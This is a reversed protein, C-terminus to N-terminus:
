NDLPVFKACVAANLEVTCVNKTLAGTQPDIAFVFVNGGDQNEVLCFKGTPDVIFNRPVKVGEGQHGVLTIRGTSEDISYAVISNQGRNSGYLFKGSPHVVVEATSYGKRVIDGPPLTSEKQVETLKGTEADYAFVSMTCEHENIAYLFRGSPHFATHRPAAAPGTTVMPPTNPALTGTAADYKYVKLQDIGADACVAFRNAPDLNISHARPPNPRIAYGGVGEHQMYSQMPGLRGDDAVPLVGCGGGTYNAILVHKGAKDVTIYCPGATGSSQENLLTLDGTTPDVAFASVIGAPPPAGKERKERPAGSEGVAFVFKRSPHIALFSPDTTAVALKPPSLQGTTADFDSRYIGQSQGGRTYTGFYVRYKTSNEAAPSYSTLCVIPLLVVLLRVLPMALEGAFSRISSSPPPSAAIIIPRAGLFM